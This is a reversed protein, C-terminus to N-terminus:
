RPELPTNVRVRQTGQAVERPRLDSANGLLHTGSGAQEAAVLAIVVASEEVELDCLEISLRLM